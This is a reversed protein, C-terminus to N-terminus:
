ATDQAARTLCAQVSPVPAGHTRSEPRPCLTLRPEPGPSGPVKAVPDGGGPVIFSRLLESDMESVRAVRASAEDGDRTTLKLGM